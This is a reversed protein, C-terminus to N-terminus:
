KRKKSLSAVDEAELDEGCVEVDKKIKSVGKKLMVYLEYLLERCVDDVGYEVGFMIVREYFKKLVSLILRSARSDESM